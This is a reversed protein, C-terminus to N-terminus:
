ARVLYDGRVLLGEVPRGDRSDGTRAALPGVRDDEGAAVLIVLVEAVDHNVGTV